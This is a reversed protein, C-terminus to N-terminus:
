DPTSPFSIVWWAVFGEPFNNSLVMIKIEFGRGFRFLVSDNSENQFLDLGRTGSKQSPIIGFIVHGVAYAPDRQQRLFLM